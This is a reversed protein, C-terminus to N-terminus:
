LAARWAQLKDQISHLFRERFRAQSFQEAHSRCHEPRIADQHREFHLIAHRLSHSTQERYLVGTAGPAPHDIVTETAGGRGYAIVPCGCAQAEVVVIGFDEEAAYLFARTKRMLQRLRERDCRGIFEVNPPAMRRLRKEEPGEGAVLLRRDPLDRFAEVILDVRKYPVHRSATFYFDERHDGGPTFFDTDVPPYIVEAQRRYTKEIRRAIFRSNAILHDVGNTTRSDWLRLKHLLIRAIISRLGKTLGAEELYAHQMDWAYRMPSHVYSIHLQDPGVVVGKAVAHSSSIILDFGRLDFQEVALPMLPLYSRYHKQAFPMRQIFSTHIAHGELWTRHEPPLTDILTFLEAQPFLRLLEALVQEAGGIATLWDHVIAVKM